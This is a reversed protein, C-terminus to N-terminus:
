FHISTINGIQAMEEPTAQATWQPPYQVGDWTFSSGDPVYQAVQNDQIIAFM